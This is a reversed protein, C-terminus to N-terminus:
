KCCCVGCKLEKIIYQKTGNIAGIVTRGAAMYGHLKSPITQGIMRDGKQTIMCADALEYLRPMEELPYWGHIM